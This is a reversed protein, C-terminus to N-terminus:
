LISIRYNYNSCKKTHYDAVFTISTVIQVEIIKNFLYDSKIRGEARAEHVINYAWRM